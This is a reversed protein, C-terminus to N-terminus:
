WTITSRMAAVLVFAPSFTRASISEPEVRGTDFDAILLDGSKM